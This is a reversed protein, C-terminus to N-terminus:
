IIIRKMRSIKIFSQSFVSLQRVSYPCIKEERLRNFATRLECLTNLEETGARVISVQSEETRARTRSVSSSFNM